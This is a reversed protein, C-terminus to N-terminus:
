KQGSTSRVYCISIGVTVFYIYVLHFPTVRKNPRIGDSAYACCNLELVHTCLCIGGYSLHFPIKPSSGCCCVCVCLRLWQSRHRHHKSFSILSCFLMPKCCFPWKMLFQCILKNRKKIERTVQWGYRWMRAKIPIHEFNGLWHTRTRMRYPGWVVNVIKKRKEAWITGTYCNM